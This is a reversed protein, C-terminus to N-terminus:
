TTLRDPSIAALPWQTVKLSTGALLEIQIETKGPEISYVRSTLAERGAIFCEIVSADIFIRLADDTKLQPPLAFKVDGCTVLQASADVLLEWVASGGTLLRVAIKSKADNLPIHFERRLTILTQELPAGPQL